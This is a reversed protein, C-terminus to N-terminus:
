KHFKELRQCLKCGKRNLKGKKMNSSWPVIGCASGFQQQYIHPMKDPAPDTFWGNPKTKSPHRRKHEVKKEAARVWAPEKYFLEIFTLAPLLAHLMVCKLCVYRKKSQVVKMKQGPIQTRVRPWKFSPAVSLLLTTNGTVNMAPKSTHGRIGCLWCRISAKPM